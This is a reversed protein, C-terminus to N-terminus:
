SLSITVSTRVSDLLYDHGVDIGDEILLVNDFNEYKTLPILRVDNILDDGYQKEIAAMAETVTAGYTLVVETSYINKDGQYIRLNALYFM